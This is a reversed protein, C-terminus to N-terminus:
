GRPQDVLTRFAGCSEAIDERGRCFATHRQLDVRMGVSEVEVIDVRARRTFGTAFEHDGAIRVTGRAKRVHAEAHLLRPTCPQGPFVHQIGQGQIPEQTGKPASRPTRFPCQPQMPPSPQSARWLSEGSTSRFLTTYPFLTSRPPRRIM